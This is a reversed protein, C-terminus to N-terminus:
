VYLWRLCRFAFFLRSRKFTRPRTVARAFFLNLHTSIKFTTSLPTAEGFFLLIQLYEQM